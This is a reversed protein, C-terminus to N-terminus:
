KNRRVVRCLGMENRPRQEDASRAPGRLLRSRKYWLIREAMYSGFSKNTTIFAFHQLFVFTRGASCRTPWCAPVAAWDRLLGNPNESALGTETCCCFIYQTPAAIQGQVAPASALQWHCGVHAAVNAIKPHTRSM